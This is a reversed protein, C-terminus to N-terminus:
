WTHMSEREREREREREGTCQRGWQGRADCSDCCVSGGTTCAARACTCGSCENQPSAGRAAMHQAPWFDHRGQQRSRLYSYQWRPTYMHAHTKIFTYGQTYHAFIRTCSLAGAQQSLMADYLLALDALLASLASLKYALGLFM